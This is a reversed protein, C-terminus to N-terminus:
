GECSCVFESNLSYKDGKKLLKSKSVLFDLLEPFNFETGSCNVFKIEKLEVRFENTLVEKLQELTFEENKFHDVIKQLVKGAPIQEAM